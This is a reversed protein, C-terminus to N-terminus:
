STHFIRVKLDYLKVMGSTQTGKALIKLEVQSLWAFSNAERKYTSQTKLREIKVSSGWM